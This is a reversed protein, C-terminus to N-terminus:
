PHASSNGAAVADILQAYAELWITDDDDYAGGCDIVYARWDALLHMQTAKLRAYNTLLLEM